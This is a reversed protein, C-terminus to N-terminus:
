VHIRITIVQYYPRVKRLGDEFYYESSKLCEMSLSPRAKYFAKEIENGNGYNWSKFSKKNAYQRLYIDNLQPIQVELNDSKKCKLCELVNQFRGGCVQFAILGSVILCAYMPIATAWYYQKENLM